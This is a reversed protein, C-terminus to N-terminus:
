KDAKNSHKKENEGSMLMSWNEDAQCNYIGSPKKNGITKMRRAMEIRYMPITFVSIACRKDNNM